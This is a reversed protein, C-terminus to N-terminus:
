EPAFKLLPTLPSALHCPFPPIRSRFRATLLLMSPLLTDPDAWNGVLKQFLYENQPRLSIELHETHSLKILAESFEIMKKKKLYLSKNM